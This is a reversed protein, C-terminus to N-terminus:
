ISMTHKFKFHLKFLKLTVLHGYVIWLVLIYQFRLNFKFSGLHFSINLCLIKIIYVHLMNQLCVHSDNLMSVYKISLSLSCMM